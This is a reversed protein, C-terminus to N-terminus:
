NCYNHHSIILNLYKELIRCNIHGSNHKAFNLCFYNFTILWNYAAMYFIKKQDSENRVGFTYFKGNHTTSEVM